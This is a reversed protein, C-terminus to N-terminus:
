VAPGVVDPDDVHEDRGRGLYSLAAALLDPQEILHLAHNCRDCLLGRVEDTSHCHDVVLRTEPIQQCIACAGRQADRMAEFEGPQMGYRYKRHHDQRKSLPQRRRREKTQERHRERNAEVWARYRTRACSRCLNALGDKRSRDAGFNELPQWAECGSCPKETPREGADLMQHYRITESNRGM